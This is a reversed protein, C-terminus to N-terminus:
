PLVNSRPRPLPLDIRPVDIHPADNRPVDDEPSRVGLIVLAGPKVVSGAPPLSSVVAYAPYRDFLPGLISRSQYQVVIQGASVGNRQLLDKAQNEGLGLVNPM